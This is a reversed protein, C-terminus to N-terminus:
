DDHEHSHRSRDDLDDIDDQLNHKTNSISYSLRQQMQMMEFRLEDIDDQVNAGSSQKQIKELKALRKDLMAIKESLSEWESSQDDMQDLQKSSEVSTYTQPLTVSSHYVSPSQKMPTQKGQVSIQISGDKDEVANVFGLGVLDILLFCLILMAIVMYRKKM